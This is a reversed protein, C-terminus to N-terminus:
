SGLLTYHKPKPAPYGNEEGIYEFHIVWVEPFASIAYQTKGYLEDWYKLFGVKSNFGEAWANVDTIGLLFQKGISQIRLRGISKGTRSTKIGYTKDVEWLVRGNRKVRWIGVGIRKMDDDHFLEIEDGEKIPRRTQVKGRRQIIEALEPKFLFAM